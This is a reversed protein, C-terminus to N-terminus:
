LPGLDAGMAPLVEEWSGVACVRGQELFVVMDADRVASYRHAVVIVTVEGRLPALASVVLSETESDLASTPEDLLLLRPRAFLARAIGIRQRQGGSLRAGGDGLTTDLGVPLAQVYEEAGALRLAHWVQEDSVYDLDLGLAVNARVSANALHVEQPVYGITGPFATALDLPARGDIDVQGSSPELVGLIVDALTSKGSGSRGVIATASGAIIQLSVDSLAPRAGGPYVFSVSDLTINGAVPSALTSKPSCVDEVDSPDYKGRVTLDAALALTPAAVGSAERMMLTSTQVRMLSPLIRTGAAIFLALTGVAQVADRTAFLAAGLVLGGAVAAVEFLYKPLQTMMQRDASVKAAGWRNMAIQNVYHDRRGAVSIERYTAIAEQVATLGSIDLRAGAVGTRSAWRSTLRYLAWAFIAFFVTSAVAILPDLLVLTACLAVLLVSEAAVVVMQGLMVITAAGTGQILSYATEQTSRLQIFTLPQALLDRALQAAVLAQRNALWKFTRRLLFLSLASKTVLLAGAVGSLLLVLSENSWDALGAQDVIRAVLNPPPQSQVTTVALSAVLGVLLVGALDLASLVMQVGALLALISRDRPSLLHLSELAVASLKQRESATDM